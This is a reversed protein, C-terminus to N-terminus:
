TTSALTRGAKQREEREVQLQKGIRAELLNMSRSVEQRLMGVKNDLVMNMRGWVDLAMAEPPVSNDQQAQQFEADDMLEPEDTPIAANEMDQTLNRKPTTPDAGESARRVLVKGKEIKKMVKGSTTTSFVAHTAATTPAASSSANSRGTTGGQGSRWEKEAEANVYEQLSAM